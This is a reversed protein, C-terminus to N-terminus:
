KSFSLELITKSFSFIDNKPITGSDLIHNGLTLHRGLDGDVNMLRPGLGIIALFVAIFGILAAAIEAVLNLQDFADM